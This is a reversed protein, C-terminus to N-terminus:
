SPAFSILSKSYSINAQDLPVIWPKLLDQLRAKTMGPATAPALTFTSNSLEWIMVAGADVLAPHHSIINEVAAYFNEKSIGDGSFTLNASSTPQDPHAKSTLSLVVGFTGGGGGTLAWYLEANESPSAVLYEGTGTVVEWELAQDAALGFSSALPGHGGGQTYGGALGVDPCNGGVVVLGRKNAAEVAEYVQVGAGIKIAKGTYTSSQYDQFDINKLNHTWIALAGAGTAKGYYDHGTNRITLRINKEKIFNITRQVDSVGTVNVAYQVYTGIVCQSSIPLFPDCSQNAYFPAMISSSTVYHTEPITWESRLKECKQADYPEFSDLHCVSALPVTKLLKGGLSENFTNWESATPWCKDGPFCRCNLNTADRPLLQEINKILCSVNPVNALSLLSVLLFTSHQMAGRYIYIM